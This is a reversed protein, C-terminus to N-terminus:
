DNVTPFIGKLKIRYLLQRLANESIHFMIRVDDPSKTQRLASLVAIQAVSLNRREMMTVLGINLSQVIM